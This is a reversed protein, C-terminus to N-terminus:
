NIVHIISNTGICVLQGEGSTEEEFGNKCSCMDRICEANEPCSSVDSPVCYGEADVLVLYLLICLLICQFRGM